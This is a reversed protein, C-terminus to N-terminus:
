KFYATRKCAGAGPNIRARDGAMGPAVIAGRIAEIVCPKSVITANAFLAPFADSDAYGTAFAFPVNLECLREAVAFGKETGLNVDIFAFQPPYDAIMGLAQMVSNATRVREVGLQHLMEEIDLAIFFNDEVLLVDGPLRRATASLKNMHQSSGM